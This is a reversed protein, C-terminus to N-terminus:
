HCFLMDEFSQVYNSPLNNVWIYYACVQYPAIAKSLSYALDVANDSDTPDCRIPHKTTLLLILHLFRFTEVM